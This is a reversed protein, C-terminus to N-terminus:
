LRGVSPGSVRSARPGVLMVRITMTPLSLSGVEVFFHWTWDRATFHNIPEIHLHQHPLLVWPDVIAEVGGHVPFRQSAEGPVVGGPWAAGSETGSTCDCLFVVLWSARVSPPQQMTRVILLALVITAKVNMSLRDQAGCHLSKGQPACLRKGLEEHHSKTLRHIARVQPLHWM